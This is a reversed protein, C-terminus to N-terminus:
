DKGLRLRRRGSRKASESAIKDGPMVLTEM